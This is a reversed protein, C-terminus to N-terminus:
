TQGSHRPSARSFKNTNIPIPQCDNQHGRMLSLAHRKPPPPQGLKQGMKVSQPLQKDLVFSTAQFRAGAGVLAAKTEVLWDTQLFFIIIGRLTLKM